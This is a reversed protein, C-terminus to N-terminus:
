LSEMQWNEVNDVEQSGLLAALERAKAEIDREIVLEMESYIGYIQSSTLRGLRNFAVNLLENADFARRLKFAIIQSLQQVDTTMLITAECKKLLALGVRLLVKPGECILCDWVRVVTEAPLTLVFLSSFWTNTVACASCGLKLFQQHVRPVKDSALAGLVKEQVKCWFRMQEGVGRFLGEEVISVFVWFADEERHFGMVTLVFAVAATMGAVYGTHPNHKLFAGLVRRVALFGSGDRFAQHHRFMRQVDRAVELSVGLGEMKDGGAAMDEYYGVPAEAKRFKAGSVIMWIQPRMEPPLGKRVLAKLKRKANYLVVADADKIKRLWWKAQSRAAAQSEERAKREADTLGALTFGFLDRVAEGGLAYSSM